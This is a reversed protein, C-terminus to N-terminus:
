RGRRAVRVPESLALSLHVQQISSTPRQDVPSTAVRGPFLEGLDLKPPTLKACSEFVKARDTQVFGAGFNPPPFAAREKRGPGRVLGVKRCFDEEFTGASCSRTGQHSVSSPRTNQKRQGASKTESTSPQLM